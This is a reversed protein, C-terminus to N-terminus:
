FLKEYLGTQIKTFLDKKYLLRKVSRGSINFKEGTIVAEKTQVTEPLSAYFSKQLFTLSDAPSGDLLTYSVYKANEIFYESLKIASNVSRLNIEKAESGLSAAELLEIILAFRITYAEMKALIGLVPENLPDYSLKILKNHYEYYPAKADKALKLVRSPPEKISAENPINSLHLLNEVIDKWQQQTEPSLQKDNLPAKKIDDRIAFLMRDTFGNEIRNKFLSQLVGPQITGVVSIFPKKILVPESNIRNVRIPKGSWATLWFEEQSGPNYRNFNAIWGKLEDYNVGIGKPNISHVKVLAEQTFDTILYQKWIPHSMSNDDYGQATKEKKSLSQIHNLEQREKMYKDFALSDKDELPKVAFSLPHSKNLGRRAVLALYLVANQIFGNKIEAMFSNGIAVSATFLMSAATFDVPFNLTFNTEEIISQVAKPLADVPFPNRINNQPDSMKKIDHLDVESLGTKNEM